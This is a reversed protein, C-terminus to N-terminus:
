ISKILTATEQLPLGMVSSYSGELCAIFNAARGQIGYAGAKDLPEGSECYRRIEEESIERFSVRNISLLLEESDKILAVASIVSHTRASLSALMAMAHQTNEPKGLITDDLIVETDAALVPGPKPACVKGARAKELTVRSVYEVPSESGNWIEEVEVKLTEFEVDLSELLERRRPSASALYLM